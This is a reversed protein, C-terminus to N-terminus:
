KCHNSWLRRRVPSPHEEVVITKTMVDYGTRNNRFFLLVFCMPFMLTMLMNKAIARLLARRFGPNSAPYLLARMQVSNNFNIGPQAVPQGLPVVGEVYLIRIGMVIKGPTAGGIYTQGQATWMAEYFCVLVKTIIEVLLLDSSFSLFDTYDEELSSKLSDFDLDIRSYGFQSTNILQVVLPSHLPMCVRVCICSMWSNFSCFQYFECILM